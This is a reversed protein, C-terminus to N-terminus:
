LWGAITGPRCAMFLFCVNMTVLDDYNNQKVSLGKFYNSPLLTNDLCAVIVALNKVFTVCGRPFDTFLIEKKRCVTFLTM